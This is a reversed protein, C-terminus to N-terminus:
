GMKNDDQVMEGFDKGGATQWVEATVPDNMYKPYSSITKGMIPHVMPNACHEFNISPSTPTPDAFVRPAFAPLPHFTKNMTMVTLAQQLVLRMHVMPIALGTRTAIAPNIDEKWRLLEQWNSRTILPVGGPTNNCTHCQHVYPTVKLSRKATPNRLAMIEPADSIQQLTIIPTDNIM